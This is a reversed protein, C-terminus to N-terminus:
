MMCLRWLMHGMLLSIDPLSQCLMIQQENRQAVSTPWQHLWLAHHLSFESVLGTTKHPYEQM